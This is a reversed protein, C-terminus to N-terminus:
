NSGTYQSGIYHVDSFYSGTYLSDVYHVDSYYSGTYLSDVYHVDSSVVRTCHVLTICMM